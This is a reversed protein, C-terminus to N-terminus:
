NRNENKNSIISYTLFLLVLIFQLPFSILNSLDTEGSLLNHESVGSVLSPEKLLFVIGGALASGIVIKLTTKIFQNVEIKLNFFTSAVLAFAMLGLFSLNSYFLRENILNDSQFFMSVSGNSALYVIFVSLSAQMLKIKDKLFGYLVMITLWILIMSLAFSSEYNFSSQPFDHGASISSLYSFLELLSSNSFNMILLFMALIYPMQNEKEM